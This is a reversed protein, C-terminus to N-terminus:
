IRLIEYLLALKGLPSKTGVSLNPQQVVLKKVIISPPLRDMDAPALVVIKPWYSRRAHTFPGELELIEINYVSEQFPAELRAFTSFILNEL